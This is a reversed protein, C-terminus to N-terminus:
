CAIESNGTRAINVEGQPGAEDGSGVDEFSTPNAPGRM